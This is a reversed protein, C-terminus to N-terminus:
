LCGKIQGAAGSDLYFSVHKSHVKAAPLTSSDRESIVSKLASAKEGGTVVFVSHAAANLLKYTFTIRSPPPKPSDTIPAILRSSESLLHHGPFLSCTHGDPGMGLLILDFQLSPVASRLRSEYDSAAKDPNDLLDKNITYIQHSPIQNNLHTLFCKNLENYNSDSHDHPVCREDSFFVHWKPLNFSSLLQALHPCVIKPLSGGSFAITFRGNRSIAEKELQLILRAASEGLSASSEFVHVTPQASM